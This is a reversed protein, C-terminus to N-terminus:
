QAVCTYTCVGNDNILQCTGTQTDSYGCLANLNVANCQSTNVYSTCSSAISVESFFILFFATLLIIPMRKFTFQVVTKNASYNDM